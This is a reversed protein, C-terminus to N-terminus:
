QATRRHTLTATAWGAFIGTAAICHLTGIADAWHRAPSILSLASTTAHLAYYARMWAETAVISGVLMALLVMAGIHWAMLAAQRAIPWAAPSFAVVWASVALAGYLWAYSWEGTRTCGLVAMFQPLLLLAQGVTWVWYYAVGTLQLLLASRLLDSVLYVLWWDRRGTSWLAAVLALQAAISAYWAIM